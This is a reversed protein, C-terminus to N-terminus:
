HLGHLLQTWLSNHGSGKTYGFLNFLLLKRPAASSRETGNWREADTGTHTENGSFEFQESWQTYSDHKHLVSWWMKTVGMELSCTWLPPFVCINLCLPAGTNLSSTNATKWELFLFLVRHKPKVWNFRWGGFCKLHYIWRQIETNLTQAKSRWLDMELIDYITLYICSYCKFCCCNVWLWICVCSIFQMEWVLWVSCSM